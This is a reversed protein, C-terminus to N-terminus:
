FVVLGNKILNNYEFSKIGLAAMNVDNELLLRINLYKEMEKKIEYKEIELNPAVSIIGSKPNVTGPVGLALANM